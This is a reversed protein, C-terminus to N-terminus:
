GKATVTKIIDWPIADVEEQSMGQLEKLTLGDYKTSPSQGRSLDAQNRTLKPNPQQTPEAPKGKGAIVEAAVDRQFIAIGDRWDLTEGTSDKNYKQDSFASDRLEKRREESIGNEEAFRIVEDVARNIRVSEQAQAFQRASRELDTVERRFDADEAMKKKVEDEPMSNIERIRAEVQVRRQEISLEQRQSDTDAKARRGVFTNYAQRFGEDERLYRDIDDFMNERSIRIYDKELDDNQEGETPTLTEQASPPNNEPM